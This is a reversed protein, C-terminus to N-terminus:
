KGTERCRGPYVPALRTRAEAYDPQWHEALPHRAVGAIVQAGCEACELLDADWLRYSAGDELLEEVTVGNKVCRMFRGCGCLYASATPPM